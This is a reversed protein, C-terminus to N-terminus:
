ELSEVTLELSDDVLFNSGGNPCSSIAHSMEGTELGSNKRAHDIKSTAHSHQLNTFIDTGWQSGSLTYTRITMM